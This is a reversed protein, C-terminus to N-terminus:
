RTPKAVSPDIATITFKTSETSSRECGNFSTPTCSLLKGISVAASLRAVALDSPSSKGGVNNAVALSTISHSPLRNQALRRFLDVQDTGYSLLGGVDVLERYCYIAPLLYRAALDAILHRHVVHDAADDVILGDVRDREMAEFIQEYAAQDVPTSVLAVDISIGARGSADRLGDLAKTEWLPSTTTVLVRVNALRPATEILFQFRKGYLELGADVSVGTINGGPKSLITVIGGVVPDSTLALIAITTTLPKFALALARCILLILDPRTAIVARATAEARDHRGLVSYWEVVLNKGEIYGLGNLEQFYAPFARRGSSTVQDRSQSPHVLAIRKPVPSGASIEAYVPWGAVGLAAIASSGAMFDRRRM